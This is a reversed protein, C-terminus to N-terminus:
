RGKNLQAQRAKMWDKTAMNDDMAKRVPTNSGGVKATPKIPQTPQSSAPKTAQKVLQSGVMASHFLKVLRPDYIQRLEEQSFGYEKAAFDSIKQATEPGWNPIDRKLVEQGQEYRKVTEQQKELTRTQELQATKQAAQQKLDKLQQFQFFLQQAKVPDTESFQNWDVQSFQQLQADIAKEQAKAEVLESDAKIFRERAAEAEKRQEALEQTKRTYDSQRLFADKLAKPIKYKQGEHEIEESDDAPSAEQENSDPQTEHDSSITDM